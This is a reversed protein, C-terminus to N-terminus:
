VGGPGNGLQSQYIEQYITSSKLLSHHTGSAAIRGQDLVLIQDATLVTSIRQAVIFCTRNGLWKRLGEQLNAETEVDVASTSDDLILIKPALLLARAIAIRQKQGGSLNTGREVLQTDYGDSLSMIFDHAQAIRAAGLVEEESAQIRGFRINDRVTGSFLVTEQPVVGIHSLLSDQSVSRIDRGDILVRGSTVDYFRPILNVLTSKGSGTAGLIAVFQGPEAEFDIGSLVLRDRSGLYYFDVHEFVVRPTIPSPIPITGPWDVVEPTTDLVGNVREASAFGAAWVNALNGMIMLPGLATQLYNIFAVIEGTTLAGSIAQLGGNWIVL